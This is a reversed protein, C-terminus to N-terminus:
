EGYLHYCLAVVFVYFFDLSFLNLELNGFWITRCCAFKSVFKEEREQILESNV